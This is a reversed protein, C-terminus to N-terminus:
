ILNRFRALEVVREDALVSSVLPFEPATCIEYLHRTPAPKEILARVCADLSGYVVSYPGAGNTRRQNGLSPWKRLMARTNFDVADADCDM